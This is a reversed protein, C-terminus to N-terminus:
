VLCGLNQFLKQKSYTKTQVALARQRIINNLQLTLVEQTQRINHHAFLLMSAGLVSSTTRRAKAQSSANALPQMTPTVRPTLAVPDDADIRQRVMRLLRWPGHGCMKLWIEKGQKIRRDRTRTGEHRKWAMTRQGEGKPKERDLSSSAPEM